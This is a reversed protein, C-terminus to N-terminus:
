FIPFCRHKGRDGKEVKSLEKIVNQITPTSEVTQQITATGEVVENMTPTSEPSDKHNTKCFAVAFFLLLLVLLIIVAGLVIGAIAPGTINHSRPSVTSPPSPSSPPATINHSGPSVTSPAWAPSPTSTPSSTSPCAPMPDGCLYTDLFSSYGFRGYGAPLAGTLNNNSVNFSILSWAPLEPLSGNLRNYSLDITRITPHHMLSEPIPGTFSNMSAIFLSLNGWPTFNLPLQGSFSNHALNITKLGTCNVLDALLSGSLSNNDLALSTLNLLQSISDHPIEGRLNQSSLNLKTVTGNKMTVGTWNDSIHAKWTEKVATGNGVSNIFSLLSSEDDAYVTVFISSWLLVFRLTSSLRMALGLRLLKSLSDQPIEGRLNGSALNLKTVAGDSNWQVGKWTSINDTWSQKFTTGNAVANIFRLLAERENSGDVTVVISIWVFVFGLASASRLLQESM